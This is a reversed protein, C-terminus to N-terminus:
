LFFYAIAVCADYDETDIAKVIGSNVGTLATVYAMVRGDGDGSKVKTLHDYAAGVPMRSKYKLEKIGSDGVPLQLIQTIEFTEHNLTLIGYEFFEILDEIAQKAKDRKRQSVCKSDLWAEVEKTAQEKSIMKATSM